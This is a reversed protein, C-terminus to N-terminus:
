MHDDIVLLTPESDDFDNLDSLGQHFVFRLYNCFLQQYEGYCYVIKSPPPDIMRTVNDILRFLIWDQWV